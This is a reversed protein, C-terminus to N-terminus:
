AARGSDLPHSVHIGAVDEERCILHLKDGWYFTDFTYGGSESGGLEVLDGVKAETPRFKTSDWMKTRKHKEPHDYKKPFTGPGAAKVIGKVPRCEHIVQIIASLTHELPEIILVDRLPRIAQDAPIRTGGVHSIHSGNAFRYPVTAM